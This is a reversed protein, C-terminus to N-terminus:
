IFQMIFHILHLRAVVFSPNRLAWLGWSSASFDSKEGLCSKTNFPDQSWEPPKQFCPFYGSSHVCGQGPKSPFAVSNQIGTPLDSGWDWQKHFLSNLCDSFQQSLKTSIWSGKRRSKGGRWWGWGRNLCLGDGPFSVAFLLGIPKQNEFFFFAPHKGRFPNSLQSWSYEVFHSWLDRATEPVSNLSAHTPIGAAAAKLQTVKAVDSLM